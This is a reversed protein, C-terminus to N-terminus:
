TYIKYGVDMQVISVLEKKTITVISDWDFMVLNSGNNYVSNYMFGRYGLSKIYESIFQLPVYDLRNDVTIACSLDDLILLLLCKVYPNSAKIGYHEMLYVNFSFVKSMDVNCHAVTISDGIQPRVECIATKMTSALYLYSIGEPNCRGATSKRKPPALMKDDSCNCYDGIRARYYKLKTGVPFVPMDNLTGLITLLEKGSFYRNKEVIDTKFKTWVHNVYEYVEDPIEFHRNEGDCYRVLDVM